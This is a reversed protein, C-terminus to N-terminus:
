VLCINFSYTIDSYLNYNIVKNRHTQRLVENRFLALGEAHDMCNRRWELTKEKTSKKQTPFGTLTNNPINM